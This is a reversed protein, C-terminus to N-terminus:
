PAFRRPQVGLLDSLRGNDALLDRDLRASMGMGRGGIRAMWRLGGGPLPLALTHPALRRRARAFMASVPLCEGGGIGITGTAQPRELAALVARALDDAHVPQRLGRGRPLPFVHWRRARAALKELSGGAGGYILTARLITCASGLEECRALLRQESVRLRGALEREAPDPSDRKSDVSMSSMAVVRPSGAVGVRELWRSFHDLPGLCVIAATAAPVSPVTDPLCGQLWKLTGAGVRPERSFAVVPMERAKLYPLLYQGIQGSGGFVVCTM